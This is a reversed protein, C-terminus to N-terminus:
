SRAGIIEFIRTARYYNQRGSTGVEELVGDDVLQNVLRNATVYEGEIAEQAQSITLYPREFLYMVLPLINESRAAQYRETYEERLDVLENARERAEVAQSRVGELFFKLWPIWEGRQSVALMRNTYEQKYENFFSSLYLYPEPLVGDRQLLLSILLRGLRGNGDFFPHITEFQYHALGARLLSQMERDENLYDLLETMRDPVAEPPPPVYRAEEIFPTGGIYVQGDRYQGPRKEEGRVDTLLREHMSCLLSETLEPSDEIQKRGYNLARLYNQVEKVGERNEDQVLQEGGAEYAYLDSLTARTGEIRASELAEKRVFPEILVRDDGVRPGIGKLEAVAAAADAVPSLLEGSEIEPPLPDPDFAIYNPGDGISVLSGPADEEFADREM